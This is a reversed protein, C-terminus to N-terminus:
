THLKVGRIVAWVAIASNVSTFYGYKKYYFVAEEIQKPVSLNGNIQPDSANRIVLWDPVEQLAEPEPIAVQWPKEDSPNRLYDIVMGLFADGMEVGCGADGLYNEHRGHSTGYEFRDTTLMPLFARYSGKVGDQWIRPTRTVLKPDLYHQYASLLKQTARLYRAGLPSLTSCKYLEDNYPAKAFARSLRLRAARTMMVDGLATRKLTAGATGVTIILKPRVEDIIQLFLDAVPVRKGLPGTKMWDRNFHLESKFCLVRVHRKLSDNKIRTLFYTGLRDAQRAPAGPRMQKLYTSAFNRPRYIYWPKTNRPPEKNPRVDRYGPTLVDGLAFGEAVTWTIVVVDAEPLASAPKRGKLPLPAPAGGSWPLPEKLEEAEPLEDLKYPPAYNIIEKAIQELTKERTPM